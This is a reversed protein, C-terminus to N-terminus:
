VVFISIGAAIKKERNEKANDTAKLAPGPFRFLAMAPTEAQCRRYDGHGPSVM